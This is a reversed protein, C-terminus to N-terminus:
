ATNEFDVSSPPPCTSRLARMFRIRRQSSGSGKHSRSFFNVTRPRFGAPARASPSRGLVVPEHDARHEINQAGTNGPTVQRRVKTRPTRDIRPEPAPACGTKETPKESEHRRGGLALQPVEVARMDLQMLVARIRAASLGRLRDTAGFTADIRLQRGDDVGTSAGHREAEGGSLAMIQIRDFGQQRAQTTVARHRVLAEIGIRKARPQTPLARADADWPFARAAPGNGEVAAVVPAAMLDFVEEAADFAVTADASAVFLEGRREEAENLERCHEIPESM